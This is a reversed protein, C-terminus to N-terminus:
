LTPVSSSTIEHVSILDVLSEAFQMFRYVDSFNTVLGVSIRVAGSSKGDICLRFDDLTLHETPQNFCAALEPKSLGLAFERRAPTAFAARACRSTPQNAQQEILSPGSGRGTADYFNV